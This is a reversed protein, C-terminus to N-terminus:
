KIVCKDDSRLLKDLSIVLGAMFWFLVPLQLTYFNTDVFSHSLFAFLGAILGFSLIRGQREKDKEAFSDTLTQRFFLFLIGMFAALGLIGVEVAIQVYCNHAYSPSFGNALPSHTTNLFDKMLPMYTNLGHGLFPREKVMLVSEEWLDTRWLVTQTDNGALNMHKKFQFAPFISVVAIIVACLILLKRTWIWSRRNLLLIGLFLMGLLTAGMAGRSFTLLLAWVLTIFVAIMIGKQYAEKFRIFLLSMAMPIAVTLFGGLVNPHSFAATARYGEVLARSGFIDRQMLYVQILCDIGTAFSTFIFIGLATYIHKRTVFVEIALIYVAFWEITKNFFGILSQQPMSSGILSAICVLLFYGIGPNLANDVPAFANCFDAWITKKSSKKSRMGQFILAHKLLWLLGSGIVTVEIVAKSYPLWFIMVCLLFRIIKDINTIIVKSKM